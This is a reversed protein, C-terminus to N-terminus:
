EGTGGQSAAQGKLFLFVRENGAQRAAEMPTRGKRDVSHLNAGSHLLKEVTEINGTDVALHLPTHGYISIANVNAGRDLLAEVARASNSVCAVHLPTWNETGVAEIPSGWDLLLRVIEGQDNGAARHVPLWGYRDPRAFLAGARCMSRVRRVKGRIVAQIFSYQAPKRAM